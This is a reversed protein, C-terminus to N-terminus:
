RKCFIRNKPKAQSNKKIGKAGIEYYGKNGIRKVAFLKPPYV